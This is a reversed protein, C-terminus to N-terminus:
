REAMVASCCQVLFKCKEFYLVIRCVDSSLVDKCLVQQLLQFWFM